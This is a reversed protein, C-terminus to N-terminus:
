LSPLFDIEDSDEETDILDGILPDETLADPNMLHQLM